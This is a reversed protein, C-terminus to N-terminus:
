CPKTVLGTPLGATCLWQPFLPAWGPSNSPWHYGAFKASSNNPTFNNIVSAMCNTVNGAGGCSPSGPVYPNSLNPNSGLVNNSNYSFYPGDWVFTNQNDYGFAFNNYVSVSWNVVYASLAYTNNSVCAKQSKTAALNYREQVNYASNLLVESCLAAPQMASDQENGWVTNGSIYILAHNSGAVNNQIEIGHGGNGISINNEIAAQAQYPYPMGTVTGDFTDFIIGDGGWAQVGGCPNHQYNGWTFNGAVYIHTGANWDSQVPEFVNISNYCQDSGQIANYAINGIVALYDVGSTGLNYSSFGGGQCGNAINNAFVIHHITTWNSYSPAAGFCFGSTGGWVNVEWGQVGWYSHDVNIGEVNTYMKCGDFWECQLWAVSNGSPCSVNGWHGSNFNGSDYQTSALAVIVDGCSLSHKPSLWPHSWSAGNNGDYGGNAAPALYYTHALLAIPSCCCLLLLLGIPRVMRNTSSLMSSKAPLAFFHKLIRM